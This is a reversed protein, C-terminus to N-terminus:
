KLIIEGTRDSTHVTIYPNDVSIIDFRKGTKAVDGSAVRIINFYITDGTKIPKNLMKDFPFAWRSTWQNPKSTDTWCKVHYSPHGSEKASVNQRWNVEGWSIGAIRADPASLWYRFPQGRQCALLIEWDDFCAIAPSNVLKATECNEVIEIYLWKGDHAIRRTGGKFTSKTGAGRNYYTVEEAKISNWDVKTVDGGADKTREAVWKPTPAANRVTYSDFGQKMYDWIGLKFCKVRAKEFDTEALKEAEAIFSGLKDMVEKTGLTGWALQVTQHGSGKPYLNKDCYRKEVLRYFKKLPEAAKGCGAFYEDLMDAAKRDPDIMWQCQMYNDVEGNFGCHFIGETVNMRKFEKYQREAEDAFFGPFCHFGGNNAIELPFTNYLWMAMPTKPYKKRWEEMLGMQKHVLNHYPTRNGSICFYVIVNDEMKMNTPVGEHAAYALTTIMKDPHSKKIERAVANVFKFWHTSQYSRDKKREPEYEKTCNECKCFSANDMPELCYTDKGWIYGLVSVNRYRKKFGGKDFYERIDEVVQKITDPHSYCLQPPLGVYGKAFINPHKKEFNVHKENFFRDYYWYFSHNAPAFYGGLRQRCMFRKQQEMIEKESKGNYAVQNYAKYGDTGAKWITPSYRNRDLPSGGRYKMFPKGRRIGKEVYIDDNGGFFSVISAWFGKKGSYIKGKKTFTTGYDTSDAWIVGCDRQLFEYVAYLSGQNEFIDPIGARKEFSDLGVFEIANDTSNITWVQHGLDGKKFYTRASPGVRYEFGSVPKDDTVIPLKEGIIEALHLQLEEAAYKVVRGADSAIVIQDAYAAGLTLAALTLVKSKM